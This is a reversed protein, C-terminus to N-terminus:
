PQLARGLAIGALAAAFGCAMSGLGYLLALSVVRDGVLTVMDLSYTSFTTYGGLVGVMLFIRLLPSIGFSRTQTLEAVLGIILSGTLNILLTGWPFGPGLRQTVAFGVVYRLVSGFGGGVAIAALTQWDFM